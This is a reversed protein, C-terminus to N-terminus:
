KVKAAVLKGLVDFKDGIIDVAKALAAYPTMSGDTEFKFIFRTDDGRVRIGLQSEDEVPWGLGAAEAYAKEHGDNLNVKTIDEVVIKGAADKMQNGSDANIVAKKTVADFKKQDIEVVPYYKYGCGSVPQFKAHVDGTGLIAETELILRQNALLECIPIGPDAVRLDPHDSQLDGSLVTCPGEKSLTFRVTCNPCGEGECTCEEHPVYLEHDTPIPLLGLRHAIIEDFLGSTNDYFTVHEIALKPVDSLLVRRLTNVFYPSAEQIDLVAKRDDMELVEVKM